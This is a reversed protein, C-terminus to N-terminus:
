FAFAEAHFDETSRVALCAVDDLTLTASLVVGAEVDAHALVVSEESQDIAYHHEGGTLFAALEDVHLGM